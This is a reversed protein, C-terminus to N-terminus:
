QKIKTNEIDSNVTTTLSAGAWSASAAKLAAGGDNPVVVWANFASKLNNVDNELNNLQAKVGDRKCMGGLTGDNFEIDNCNILIKQINGCKLVLWDDSNNISAIIARSGPQPVIFFDIAASEESQLLVDNIQVDDDTIVNCLRNTEDITLVNCYLVTEPGYKGALTKLGDAIHREKKDL